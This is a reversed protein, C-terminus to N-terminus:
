CVKVLNRFRLVAFFAFSCMPSLKYYSLFEPFPWFPTARHPLPPGQSLLAQLVGHGAASPSLQSSRASAASGAGLVSPGGEGPLAPCFPSLQSSRASAAAGAGLVSPGGGWAPSAAPGPVCEGSASPEGPEPRRQAGLAAEGPVRPSEVYKPKRVAGAPPVLQAHRVRGVRM